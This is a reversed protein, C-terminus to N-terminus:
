NYANMTNRDYLQTQYWITHLVLSFLHATYLFVVCLPSQVNMSM